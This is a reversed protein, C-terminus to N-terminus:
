NEKKMYGFIRIACKAAEKFREQDIGIKHDTDIDPIENWHPRGNPSGYPYHEICYYLEQALFEIQDEYSRTQFEKLWVKGRALARDRASETMNHILSLHSSRPHRRL